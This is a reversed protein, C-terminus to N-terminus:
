DQKRTILKTCAVFVGLFISVVICDTSFGGFHVVRLGLMSQTLVFSFSAVGVMLAVTFYSYAMMSLYQGLKINYFPIYLKMESPTVEVANSISAGYTRKWEAKWTKNIEDFFDEFNSYDGPRIVESFGSICKTGFSARQMKQSIVHEKNTTIVIQVPTRESYAYRLMGRRLPLSEPKINRTGEPYVVIGQCPSRQIQGSIFQNFKTFDRGKTNRRFFVATRTVLGYFGFVPFAILVMLRSLFCARGEVVYLDIFFDGWDRHNCLWICSGDRYCGQEGIRYTRVKFFGLLFATWFFIDNRAKYSLSWDTGFAVTLPFSWYFILMAFLFSMKDKIAKM